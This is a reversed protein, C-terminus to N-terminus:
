LVCGNCGRWIRWSYPYRYIWACHTAGRMLVNFQDQSAVEKFIGEGVDAIKGDKIHVFGKDIVQNETYKGNTIVYESM